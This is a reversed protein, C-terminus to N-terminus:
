VTINNPMATTDSTLNALSVAAIDYVAAMGANQLFRAFSSMRVFVINLKLPVYRLFAAFCNNLTKNALM